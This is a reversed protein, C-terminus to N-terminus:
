HRPRMSDGGPRKLSGPMTRPWPRPAAGGHRARPSTVRTGSPRPRRCSSHRWAAASGSQLGWAALLLPLVFGLALAGIRVRRLAMEAMGHFFERTNFSGASMGMSVQVLRAARIGTASQLTSKPKLAANRRFSLSRAMAAVLTVALAAGSATAMAWRRMSVGCGLGFASTTM